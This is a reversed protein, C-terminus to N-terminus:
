EEVEIKTTSYIYEIDKEDLDKLFADRGKKSEFIFENVDEKIKVQVIYGNM